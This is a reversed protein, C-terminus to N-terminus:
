TAGEIVAAMEPTMGHRLEPQLPPPPVIGAIRVAIRTSAAVFRDRLNWRSPIHGHWQSSDRFMWIFDDFTGSLVFRRGVALVLTLALPVALIQAIIFIPAVAWVIHVGQDPPPDFVVRYVGVMALMCLILMAFVSPIWAFIFAGQLREVAKSPKRAPWAVTPAGLAEAFEIPRTVHRARLLEGGDGRLIITGDGEHIVASRIDSQAITKERRRPFGVAMRVGGATLALHSTFLCGIGCFAALVACLFVLAALLILGIRLPSVGPASAEFAMLTIYFAGIGMGMAVAILAISSATWGSWGARLWERAGTPSQWLVEDERAASNADSM